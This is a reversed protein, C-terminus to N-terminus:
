AFFEAVERLCKLTRSRWRMREHSSPSASLSESVALANQAAFGLRDILAAHLPNHFNVEACGDQYSAVTGVVRVDALTLVVYSGARLFGYSGEIRCGNATLGQVVVRAHRGSVRATAEVNRAASTGAQRWM